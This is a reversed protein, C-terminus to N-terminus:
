WRKISVWIKVSCKGYKTTQNIITYIIKNAVNSTSTKGFKFYLNQKRGTNTKKWRGTCIIKLGL